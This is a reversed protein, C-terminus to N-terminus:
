ALAVVSENKWTYLSGGIIFNAAIDLCGVLRNNPESLLVNAPLPKPGFELAARCTAIGYLIYMCRTYISAQQMLGAAVKAMFKGHGSPVFEDLSVCFISALVTLPPMVAYSLMAPDHENVYRMKACAETSETSRLLERHRLDPSANAVIWLGDLLEQGIPMGLVTATFREEQYTTLMPNYNLVLHKVPAEVAWPRGGYYQNAKPRM